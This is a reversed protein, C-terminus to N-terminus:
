PPTNGPPPITSRLSRSSCPSPSTYASPTTLNFPSAVHPPIEPRRYRLFLVSYDGNLDAKAFRSLVAQVHSVRDGFNRAQVQGATLPDLDVPRRAQGHHHCDSMGDNM